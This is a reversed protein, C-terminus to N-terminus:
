RCVLCQRCFFYDFSSMAAPLDEPEPTQRETGSGVARREGFQHVHEWGSISSNVKGTLEDSEGPDSDLDHLGGAQIYREQIEDCIMQSDNQDPLHSRCKEIESEECMTNPSSIKEEFCLLQLKETLVSFEQLQDFDQKVDTMTIDHDPRSDLNPMGSAPVSLQLGSAFKNRAALRSLRLVLTDNARLIKYREEIKEQNRQTTTSIDKLLSDSVGFVRFATWIVFDESETFEGERETEQIDHSLLEEERLRFIVIQNRDRDFYAKNKRGIAEEEVRRRNRSNTFVWTSYRPAVLNASLKPLITKFISKRPSVHKDINREFCPPLQCYPDPGCIKKVPMMEPNRRKFHAKETVTISKLFKARNKAINEKVDEMRSERVTNQLSNLVATIRTQEEM